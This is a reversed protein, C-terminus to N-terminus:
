RGHFQPRRKGLFAQLGELADSTMMIRHMAQTERAQGGDRNDAMLGKIEALALPPLSALRDAVNLAVDLLIRPEVVQHVLGLALAEEADVSDGTLVMRKAQSQGILRPLRWTGGWGPIIGLNVEPQGFRASRSAIRIDTAMAMENGGGYAIGNIASVMPLRGTEFKQYLEAGLSIFDAVSGGLKMVSNLDAGAAFAPGSGTIVVARIDMNGAAETWLDQLERLVELSIANVPPNQITWVLVRDMRKENVASM